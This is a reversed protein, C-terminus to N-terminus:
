KWFPSRRVNQRPPRAPPRKITAQYAEACPGDVCFIHRETRRYMKISVAKRDEPERFKGCFACAEADLHETASQLVVDEDFRRQCGDPGTYEVFRTPRQKYDVDDRCGDFTVIQSGLKLLAGPLLQGLRVRDIKPITKM